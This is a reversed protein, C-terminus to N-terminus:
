RKRERRGQSVTFFCNKMAEWRSLNKKKKSKLAVGAAYPPEWALPQIPATAVLRCRLWLLVLYKVWQTLGSILGVDEHICTLNIEVVM